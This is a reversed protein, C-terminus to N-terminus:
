EFNYQQKYQTKESLSLKNLLRKRQAKKRSQKKTTQQTKYTPKTPLSKTHYFSKQLKYLLLHSPLPPPLFFPPPKHQTTYQQINAKVSWTVKQRKNRHSYTNSTHPPSFSLDVIDKQHLNRTQTPTAM